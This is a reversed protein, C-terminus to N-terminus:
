DFPDDPFRDLLATLVVLAHDSPLLANGSIGHSALLLMARSWARKTRAWVPQISPGDWFPREIDKYRVKKRGIGTLTRFVLNPTVDFGAQA